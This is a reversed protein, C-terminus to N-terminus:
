SPETESKENATTSGSDLGQGARGLQSRRRAFRWYLFAMLILPSMVVPLLGLFILWPTDITVHLYRYSDFAYAADAWLGILPVVAIYASTRSLCSRHKACRRFPMNQSIAEVRNSRPGIHSKM